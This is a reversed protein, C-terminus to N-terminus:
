GFIKIGKALKMRFYFLKKRLNLALFPPPPLILKAVRLQEFHILPSPLQGWSAGEGM